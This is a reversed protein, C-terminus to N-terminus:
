LQECRKPVNFKIEDDTKHASMDLNRGRQIQSKYQQAAPDNINRCTVEVKQIYKGNAKTSPACVPLPRKSFCIRGKQQDEVYQTQHKTASQSSMDQNRPQQRHKNQQRHQANSQQDEGDYQNQELNLPKQARKPSPIPNSYMIKESPYETHRTNQQVRNLAKHAQEDFILAWSAIFDSKNHVLKNQPSKLENYRQGTYSGCIGHNGRFFSDRYIQAEKGNYMVQYDGIATEVKVDVNWQDLTNQKVMYVRALWEQPNGNSYINQVKSESLQQEKGNVFLRPANNSQQNGPRLNLIVEDNANRRMVIAVEMPKNTNQNKHTWEQNENDNNKNTETNRVAITVFENSKKAHAQNGQNWEDSQYRGQYQVAVHWTNDYDVNQITANGFTTIQNSKIQCTDQYQIANRTMEKILSYSSQSSPVAIVNRWMKPVPVGKWESKLNAAKMTINASSMDNLLRVEFAMKNKQGNYQNDENLHQYTAYRIYNYVDAAKMSLKKELVDMSVDTLDLEVDIHDIAHNRLETQKGYKTRVEEKMQRSQKLQVNGRLTALEMNKELAYTLKFKLDAHPRDDNANQQHEAANKYKADVQLYITKSQESTQSKQLFALIRAKGEIQSTAGAITAVYEYKKSGVFEIAIDLADTKTPARM